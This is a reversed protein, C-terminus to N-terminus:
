FVGQIFFLFWYFDNTEIILRANKPKYDQPTYSVFFNTPESGFALLEGEKPSVEIFYFKSKFENDSEKQFYAKFQSVKKFRNGLKFSVTSTKNM